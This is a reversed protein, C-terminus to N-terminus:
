NFLSRCLLINISFEANLYNQNYLATPFHIKRPFSHPPQEEIESENLYYWFCSTVMIMIIQIWIQYFISLLCDKRLTLSSRREAIKELARKWSLITKIEPRKSSIIFVINCMCIYWYVNKKLLSYFAYRKKIPLIFLSSFLNL